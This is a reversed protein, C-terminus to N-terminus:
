ARPSQRPRVLSPIVLAAWAISGAIWVASAVGLVQFYHEPYRHASLRLILAILFLGGFAAVRLTWRRMVDERGGHGLTVHAAVTFALMALGGLFAVHLAAVAHEPYLAAAAFGTPVMWISLTVLRRHLGPRRPWGAAGTALFAVALVAARAALAARPHDLELWFTGVIAVGASAFVLRALWDRPTGTPDAPPRAGRVLPVILAGAGIAFMLFVGQQVLERGILYGEISGNGRMMRIVLGAGVVGAVCGLPLLVFANPARRGARGDLLRRVAFAALGLMGLGYALEAVVFRQLYGAAVVAIVAAACVAIEVAHAPKGATRAPLATMLFGCAFALFMGQTLIIAHGLGSYAELYGYGYLFWHSVGVWAAVLALPFFLRYPERGLTGM